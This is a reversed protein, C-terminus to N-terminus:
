AARTSLPLLLRSYWRRWPPRLQWRWRLGVGGRGLPTGDPFRLMAIIVLTLPVMWNWLTTQFLIAMGSGMGTGARITIQNILEQLASSIGALMMLIGVPIDPRARDALFGAGVFGLAWVASSGRFGWVSGAPGTSFDVESAVWATVIVILVSSVALVPRVLSHRRRNLSLGATM